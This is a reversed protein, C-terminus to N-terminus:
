TSAGLERRRSWSWTLLTVSFVLTVLVIVAEFAGGGGKLFIGNEVDYLFDMCFLYMGASGACVLWFVASSRGARLTALALLCAIGLWADALPFANEFEYYAQNHESAILDRDGFWLAWYVVDLVIAGVLLGQIVRRM